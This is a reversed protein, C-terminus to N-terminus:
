RCKPKVHLHLLMMWMLSSGELYSALQVCPLDGMFKTIQAMDHSFWCKAYAFVPRLDAERYGGLQDAGKNKSCLYYM